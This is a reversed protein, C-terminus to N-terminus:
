KLLRMTENLGNRGENSLMEAFELVELKSARRLWAKTSSINGNLFSEVEQGVNNRVM